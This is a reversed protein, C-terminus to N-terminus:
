KVDIKNDQTLKLISNTVDLECSSSAVKEWELSWTTINELIKFTNSYVLNWVRAGM